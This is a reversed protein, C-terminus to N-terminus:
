ALVKDVPSFGREDVPYPRPTYNYRKPKNTSTTVAATPTPSSTSALAATAAPQNAPTMAPAPPQASQTVATRPAPHQCGTLIITALFGATLCTPPVSIRRLSLVSNM